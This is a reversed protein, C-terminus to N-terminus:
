INIFYAGILAILIAALVEIELMRNDDSKSVM